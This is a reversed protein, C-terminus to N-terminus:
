RLGFYRLVRETRNRPIPWPKPEAGGEAVALVIMVGGLVIEVWAHGDIGNALILGGLAAQAITLRRRTM